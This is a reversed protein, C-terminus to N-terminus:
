YNYDYQASHFDVYEFDASRDDVNNGFDDSGFGDLYVQASGQGGFGVETPFPHYEKNKSKGHSPQSNEVSFGGGNRNLEEEFEDEIQYDELDEDGFYKDKDSAGALRDHQNYHNAIGSSGVAFRQGHTVQNYIDSNYQNEEIPGDDHHQKHQYSGDDQYQIKEDTNDVHHLNEQNYGANHYQRAQNSGHANYQTEQNSGDNNFNNGKNSGVDHYQNAQNSAEDHYQNAQNSAEDHYQNAQNSAEDHYQNAQNSAEDHYQHAQNSDKEYYQNGTYGSNSSGDHAGYEHESVPGQRDHHQEHSYDESDAYHEQGGKPGYHGQKNDNQNQNLSFHEPQPSNSYHEQESSFRQNNEYQPNENSDFEHDPSADDQENLGYEGDRERHNGYEPYSGGGGHIGFTPHEYEAHGGEAQYEGNINGYADKYDNFDGSDYENQATNTLGVGNATRSGVGARYEEKGPKSHRSVYVPVPAPRSEDTFMLINGVDMDEDLSTGDLAIVVKANDAKNAIEDPINVSNDEVNNIEEGFTNGTSAM